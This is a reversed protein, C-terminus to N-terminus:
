ESVPSVKVDLAKVSECQRWVGDDGDDRVGDGARKTEGKKNSTPSTQTGVDPVLGAGELPSAKGRFWLWNLTQLQLLVFRM